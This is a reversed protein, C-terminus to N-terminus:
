ADIQIQIQIFSSAPNLVFVTPLTSPHYSDIWFLGFIWDTMRLRISPVAGKLLFAPPLLWRQHVSSLSRSPRNEWNEAM